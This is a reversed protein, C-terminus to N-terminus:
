WSPHAAVVAGEIHRHLIDILEADAIACGRDIAKPL